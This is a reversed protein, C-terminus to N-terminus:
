RGSTSADRRSRQAPLFRAPRRRDQELRAELRPLTEEALPDPIKDVSEPDAFEPFKAFEQRRGDRVAAALDGSFDCFFLFPQPAGWEEGMFLMPIQPLLLYVSALARVVPM